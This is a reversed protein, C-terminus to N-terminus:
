ETELESLNMLITAFGSLLTASAITIWDLDTIFVTTGILSMATEAMTKVVKIGLVQLWTKIKDM